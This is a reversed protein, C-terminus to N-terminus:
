IRRDGLWIWDPEYNQLAVSTCSLFEPENRATSHFGWAELIKDAMFAYDPLRMALEKSLKKGFSLSLPQIALLALKEPLANKLDALALIEAFSGQHPSMKSMGLWMPASFRTIAEGPRLGFDGCDVILLQDAEMVPGLLEQGMTGGDAITVQPSYERTAYLYEAIRCGIGEDGCLINGLGLVLARTM